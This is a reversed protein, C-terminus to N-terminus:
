DTEPNQSWPWPRRAEAPEDEMPLVQWDLVGAIELLEHLGQEQLEGAVSFTGSRAPKPADDRAPDDRVFGIAALAPLAGARNGESIIIRIRM